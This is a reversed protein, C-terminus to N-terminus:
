IEETFEKGTDKLHSYHCILFDFRNIKEKGFFFTGSFLCSFRRSNGPCRSTPVPQLVMEILLRLDRRLSPIAM